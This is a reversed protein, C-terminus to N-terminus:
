DDHKTRLYYFVAAVTLVSAAMRLLSRVIAWRKKSM